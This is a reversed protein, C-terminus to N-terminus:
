LGSIEFWATGCQHDSVWEVIQDADGVDSAGCEPCMVQIRLIGADKLPECLFGRQATYREAADLARLEEWYHRLDQAYEDVKRNDFHNLVLYELDCIAQELNQRTM